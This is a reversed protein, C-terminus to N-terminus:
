DPRLPSYGGWEVGIGATSQGAISLATAVAALDRLLAGCCPAGLDGGYAATVPDRFAPQAASAHAGMAPRTVFRVGAM